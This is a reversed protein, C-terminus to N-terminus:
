SRRPRPSTASRSRFTKQFYPNGTSGNIAPAFEGNFVVQNLADRDIALDLAQRV